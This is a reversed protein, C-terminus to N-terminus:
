LRVSQVWQYVSTKCYIAFCSGLTCVHSESTIPNILRRDIYEDWLAGLDDTEFYLHPYKQIDARERLCKKKSKYKELIELQKVTFGETYRAPIAIATNRKESAELVAQLAVIGAEDNSVRAIELLLNLYIRNPRDNLSQERGAYIAIRLLRAENLRCLFDPPFDIQIM